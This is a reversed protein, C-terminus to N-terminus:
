HADEVACFYLHVDNDLFVDLFELVSFWHNDKADIVWSKNIKRDRAGSFSLSFCRIRSIFPLNINRFYLTFIIFHFRNQTHSFSLAPKESRALSITTCFLCMFHACRIGSPSFLKEQLFVRVDRSWCSYVIFYYFFHVYLTSRSTKITSHKHKTQREHACKLNDYACHVREESEQVFYSFFTFNWHFSCCFWKCQVYQLQLFTFFPLLLCIIARILKKQWEVLLVELQNIKM